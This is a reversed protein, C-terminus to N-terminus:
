RFFGEFERWKALIAQDRARFVEILVDTNMLVSEVRNRSISPVHIKACHKSTRRLTEAPGTRDKWLGIIAEMAAQRGENQRMYRDRAAQRVLESITTKERSAGAFAASEM